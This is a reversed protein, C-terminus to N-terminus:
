IHICLSAVSFREWISKLYVATKYQVPIHFLVKCFCQVVIALYFRFLKRLISARHRYAESLTPDANLDSIAESYRRVKISHAVREFLEAADGTKGDACKCYM